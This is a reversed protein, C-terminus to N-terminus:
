KLSEQHKIEGEIFSLTLNLRMIQAKIEKERDYDPTKKAEVDALRRECQGIALNCAFRQETLPIDDEGTAVTRLVFKMDNGKHAFGQRVSVANLHNVLGLKEQILSDLAREIKEFVISPLRETRGYISAFHARYDQCAVSILTNRKLNWANKTLGKAKREATRVALANFDFNEETQGGVTLQTASQALTNSM